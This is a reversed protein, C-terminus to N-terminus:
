NHIYGNVEGGQSQKLQLKEWLKYNNIIDMRIQIDHLNVETNYKKSYSLGYSLNTAITLLKSLTRLAMGLTVGKTADLSVMNLIAVISLSMLFKPLLDWFIKSVKYKTVWDEQLSNSSKGTFVLGPTITNYKVKIKYINDKIYSPDMSRELRMVKKCYKNKKKQEPTGNFYVELDKEKPNLKNIKKNILERYKEKKKELNKESSFIKFLAASYSEIYFKRIEENIRGYDSLPDERYQDSKLMITSVLVLIASLNTLGLNILFSPSTLTSWSFGADIYDFLGVIATCVIISLFIPVYILKPRSM